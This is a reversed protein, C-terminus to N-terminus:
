RKKQSFILFFKLFFFNLFFYYLFLQFFDKKKIVLIDDQKINDRIFIDQELLNGENRDSMTSEEISCNLTVYERDKVENNLHFCVDPVMLPPNLINEYGNCANKREKLIWYKNDM